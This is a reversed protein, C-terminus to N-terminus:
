FYKRNTILRQRACKPCGEGDTIHAAKRKYFLGHTSCLIPLKNHFTIEEEKILGYDYTGEGHVENGQHILYHLRNVVQIGKPSKMRKVKDFRIKYTIGNVDTGLVYLVRNGKVRNLIVKHETLGYRRAYKSALERHEKSIGLKKDIGM